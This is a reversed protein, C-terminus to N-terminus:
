SKIEKYEGSEILVSNRLPQIHFYIWAELPSGDDLKCPVLERKNIRPHGEFRDVMALMEETVAYVDGVIPTEPRRTVVCKKDMKFLAYSEVTSARGMSIAESILASNRCGQRLTGHAFIYPMDGGKKVATRRVM